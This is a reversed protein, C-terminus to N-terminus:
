TALTDALLIVKKSSLVHTSRVLAYKMAIFSYFARKPNKGCNRHFKGYIYM